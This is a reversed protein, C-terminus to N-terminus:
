VKEKCTFAGWQPAFHDYCAGYSAFCAPTFGWITGGGCWKNANLYQQANHEQLVTGFLGGGSTTGTSTVTAMEALTIQTKGSVALLAAETQPGFQGDVTVSQGKEKLMKQLQTVEAGSMGRKLLKNNDLTSVNVPAAPAGPATPTTKSTDTKAPMFRYILFALLVIALFIIIGLQLTSM